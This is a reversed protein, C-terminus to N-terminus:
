VKLLNNKLLDRTYSQEYESADQDYWDLPESIVIRGAYPRGSESFLTGPYSNLENKVIFEAFQENSVEVLVTEDLTEKRDYKDELYLTLGEVTREQEAIIIREKDFNVSCLLSLLSM